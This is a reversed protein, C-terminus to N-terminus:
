RRRKSRPNVPPKHRAVAPQPATDDVKPKLRPRYSEGEVVFDFAANKFRDVASQALLVADHRRALERVEAAWPRTPTAVAM